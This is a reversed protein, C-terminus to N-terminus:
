IANLVGQVASFQNKTQRYIETKDLSKPSYNNQTFTISTGSNTSSNPTGNSSLDSSIVSAKRTSTNVTVSGNGFMGNLQKSGAEVDSLDVVPRITPNMDMDADVVDSIGNIAERMADVTEDCVDIASGTALDSYKTLGVGLGEDLDKGIEMFVKSPSNIKFVEKFKNVVGNGFNKIDQGITSLSKTMGAVIGDLLSKGIEHLDGPLLGIQEGIKNIFKKVAEKIDDAKQDIADTIGNIIDVILQLSAAAIKATEKGLQGLFAVLIDTAKSVLGPLNNEIGTMLCMIMKFGLDVLKPFYTEILIITEDLLVGLVDMVMPIATIIFDCLQTFLLSIWSM